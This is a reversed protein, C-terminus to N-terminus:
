CHIIVWKISKRKKEAIERTQVYFDGLVHGLLLLIFYVKFM